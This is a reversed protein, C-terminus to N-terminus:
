LKGVFDRHLLSAGNAVYWIFMTASASIIMISRSRRSRCISLSAVIALVLSILHAVLVYKAWSLAVVSRIGEDTRPAFSSVIIFSVGNSVLAVIVGLLAVSTARVRIELPGITADEDTVMTFLDAAEYELCHNTWPSLNRGKQLVAQNSEPMVVGNLPCSSFVIDSALRCASHEGPVAQECKRKMAIQSEPAKCSPGVSVGNRLQFEVICLTRRCDRLKSSAISHFRFLAFHWNVYVLRPIM